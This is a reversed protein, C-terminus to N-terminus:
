MESFNQCIKNKENECLSYIKSLGDKEYINLIKNFNRPNQSISNKYDKSTRRSNKIAEFWKDREGKFETCMDIKKDGM